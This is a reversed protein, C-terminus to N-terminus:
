QTGRGSQKMKGYLVLAQAFFSKFQGGNVISEIIILPAEPEQEDLQAPTMNAVGALFDWLDPISRGLITLMVVQGVRSSHSDESEGEERKPLNTLADANKALIGAVKRVDGANLKRTQM